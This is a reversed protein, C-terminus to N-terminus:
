KAVRSFFRAVRLNIKKFNCNVVRLECSAVRLNYFWEGVLKLFFIKFITPFFTGVKRLWHAHRNSIQKMFIINCYWYLEFRPCVSMWRTLELNSRSRSRPSTMDFKSPNVLIGHWHKSWSSISHSSCSTSSLNVVASFTGLFFANESIVLVFLTKTSSFFPVLKFLFSSNNM